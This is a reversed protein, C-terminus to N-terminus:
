GALLDIATAEEGATARVLVMAASVEKQANAFAIYAQLRESGIQGL